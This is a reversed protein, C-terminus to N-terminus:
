PKQRQGLIYVVINDIQANTLLPNPMAKGRAIDRHTTMLFNRLTKSTFKTDAAVASFAPGQPQLPPAFGQDAAVVHCYACTSLTLSRGALPDPQAQSMSAPFLIASAVALHLCLRRRHEM